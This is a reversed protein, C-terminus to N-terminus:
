LGFRWKTANYNQLIETSTLARNYMRAIAINADIHWSFDSLSPGAMGMRITSTTVGSNTPSTIINTGKLNGNIYSSLNNGSRVAVVNFWQGEIIDTGSTGITLGPPAVQNSVGDWIIYSLGNSSYYFMAHYGVYVFLAGHNETNNYNTPNRNNIKAWIETSHNNYLYSGVSLIDSGIHEAYGGVETTPPLTRTFQISGANTSSYSYYSPNNLTFNKGNGSLDFWTTGTVTNFIMADLHLVLGDKVIGDYQHQRSSVSNIGYVNVNIPM